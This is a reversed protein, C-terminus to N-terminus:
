TLDLVGGSDVSRLPLQRANQTLTHVLGNGYTFQKLFHRSVAVELRYNL